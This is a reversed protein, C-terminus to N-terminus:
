PILPNDTAIQRRLKAEFDKDLDALIEAQELANEKNGSKSYLEGLHFHAWPNKENIMIAKKYYEEAKKLDGTKRYCSGLGDYSGTNAFDLKISKTFAAQAKAVDGQALYVSGLGFYAMSNEGLANVKEFQEIAPKFDNKTFAEWGASLMKAVEPSVEGPSGASEDQNACYGSFNFM